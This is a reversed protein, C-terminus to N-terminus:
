VNAVDSYPTWFSYWTSQVSYRRCHRIQFHFYIHYCSYGDGRCEPTGGSTRVPSAGPALPRHDWQPTLGVVSAQIGAGIMVTPGVDTFALLSFSNNTFLQYFPAWFWSTRLSQVKISRLLTYKPTECARVCCLAHLMLTQSRCVLLSDTKYELLFLTLSFSNEGDQRSELFMFVNNKPPSPALWSESPQAGARLRAAVLSYVKGHPVVWGM